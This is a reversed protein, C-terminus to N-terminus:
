CHYIEKFFLTTYPSSGFRFKTSGNLLIAVPEVLFCIMFNNLRKM